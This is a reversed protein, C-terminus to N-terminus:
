KNKAIWADIQAQVESIIKDTGAANLKEIFEDYTKDVDVAAYILVELYEDIVTKCATIQPKLNDLNPSFGLLPSRAATENIRKTEEWTNDEQFPLLYSNYVSGIAWEPANYPRGEIKEIRNEGTKKYNVDEIGYSLLNYLEVDTNVLELVKAALVPNKSTASIGNMTAIIGGNTLLPTAKIIVVEKGTKSNTLDLGPKYTAGRGISPYVKGKGVYEQLKREDKIQPQALGEEVWKKRTKLYYKFEETEYQNVLKTPNDSAFYIAGPLESGLISQLGFIITSDEHWSESCEAYTGTAVKQRVLYNEIGQLFDKYNNGLSEYEKVNLGLSEINQEPIAFFTARAAIQQNPIAYISGNVRVGQWLYEPIQKYLEPVDKKLIDDLPLLTGKAINNYYNNSWNSTFVIDFSQNSANLVQIKSEYSGFDLPILELNASLKKGVIENAKKFVDNNDVNTSDIPVYWKVNGKIVNTNGVKKVSCGSFVSCGLVLSVLVSIIVKSKKM